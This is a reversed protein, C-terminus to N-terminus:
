RRVAKSRWREAPPCAARPRLTQRRPPPGAPGAKVPAGAYAPTEGPVVFVTLPCASLPTANQFPAHQKGKGNQGRDREDHHQAVGHEDRDKGQQFLLEREALELHPEEDRREGNGCAQDDGEGAGQRVVDPSLADDEGSEEEVAGSPKECAKGGQPSLTGEGPDQGAADHLSDAGAAGVLDG